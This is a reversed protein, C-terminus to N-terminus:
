MFDYLYKLSDCLRIDALNLYDTYLFRILQKFINM